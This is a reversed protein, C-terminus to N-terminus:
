SWRRIGIYYLYPKEEIFRGNNANYQSSMGYHTSASRNGDSKLRDANRVQFDKIAVETGSWIGKFVVGFSGRGIENSFTIQDKQVFPLSHPFKM